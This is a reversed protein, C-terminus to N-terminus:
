FVLGFCLSRVYINDAEYRAKIEELLTEQSLHTLQALLPYSTLPPDATCASPLKILDICGDGM